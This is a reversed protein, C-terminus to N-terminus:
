QVMMVFITGTLDSLVERAVSPEADKRCVDGKEMM